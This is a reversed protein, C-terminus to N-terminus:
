NYIMEDLPGVRNQPDLTQLDRNHGLVPPKVAVYSPATLWRRGLAAM